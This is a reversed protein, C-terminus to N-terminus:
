STAKADYIYNRESYDHLAQAGEPGSEAARGFRGAFARLGATGGCATSEVRRKSPSRACIIRPRRMKQSLAGGMSM